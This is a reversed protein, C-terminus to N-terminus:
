GANIDYQNECARKLITMIRQDDKIQEWSLGLADLADSIDDTYCFEHNALEYNFADYLFDDDKMAEALERDSRELFDDILKEDQALIYAGHGIHLLRVRGGTETEFQKLMSKFQMESYAYKIPLADYQKQLQDKLQKYKNM